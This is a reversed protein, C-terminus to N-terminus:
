DNGNPAEDAPAPPAVPPAFLEAFHQTCRAVVGAAAEAVEMNKLPALRALQIIAQADQATFQM